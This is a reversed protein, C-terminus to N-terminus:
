LTHLIQFYLQQSTLSVSVLTKADKVKIFFCKVVCMNALM